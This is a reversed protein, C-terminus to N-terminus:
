ETPENSDWIQIAARITDKIEKGIPSNDLEGIPLVSVASVDSGPKPPGELLRCWYDVLVYHFRVRNQQDRFIRDFVGILGCIQAKISLEELLEREIAQVLTEGLEVMGGPLSWQGRGPEQDRKVLLVGEESFVVAAVGVIPGAPYERKM